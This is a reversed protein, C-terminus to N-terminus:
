SSAPTGSAAERGAAMGRHLAERNLEETGKPVRALVARELAEVPVANTLAVVAGLAVINAVIARGLEQTAIRGIPVRVIRYPGSPIEPVQDPDAILLGGTKLKSAYRRCAEATMALLVDAHTVKPFDIEGPSIVVEARSAGGRSEPGYSQTQVANLGALVAAEALIIGATIVGQGGEGALTAEWREASLAPETADSSM